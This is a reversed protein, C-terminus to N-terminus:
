YVVLLEAVVPQALRRVGYTPPHLRRPIDLPMAERVALLAAASLCSRASQVDDAVRIHPHSLDPLEALQIPRPLAQHLGGHPLHVKRRPAVMPHQFQRPRDGIQRPALTDLRRM